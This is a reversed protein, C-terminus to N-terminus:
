LDDGDTSTNAEVSADSTDNGGDSQTSAAGLLPGVYIYLGDTATRATVTYVVAPLTPGLAAYTSDVNAQLPTGQDALGDNEVRTARLTGTASGGTAGDLFVLRDDGAPQWRIIDPGFATTACSSLSTVAGSFAQTRVDGQDWVVVHNQSLLTAFGAASPASSIACPAALTTSWGFLDNGVGTVTKTYVVTGGDDSHAFVSAVETDILTTTSPAAHDPMLRLEGLTHVVKARFLVGTAGVGRFDAVGTALTVPTSGGPFADLELTGSPALDDHNFARLWLWHTGDDSIQWSSVDSAVTQRTGADDIKQVKLTELGTPTPRASWALTAGDPSLSVQFKEAADAASVALVTEITPLPAGGSLPLPGAVLDYSVDGDANESRNQLCLAVERTQHGSCLVGAGSTLKRGTMWGPRWASVPGVFSQTASADADAQYILTDGEFGDNGAGVFRDFYANTSLRLCSADTGDCSIATGRSARTVDIVWLEYPGSATAQIAPIVFGCWRDGTAGPQNTCSNSGRGVLAARGAVLQRTLGPPAILEGTSDDNADLHGQDGTADAADSTDNARADAADSRGAAGDAPQRPAGDGCAALTLVSLFGTARLCTSRYPPKTV